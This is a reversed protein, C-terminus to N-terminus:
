PKISDTPNSKSFRFLDSLRKVKKRLSLSLGTKAIEGEFVSEYEKTHFAKLASSGDSELRYELSVDDFLFKNGFVPDKTSYRVGLSTNLRDNFFGKYFRGLYDIRRGMGYTGDYTEVDFSFPVEGMLSGLMNKIERQLLSNLAEGVDMNDSGAGGSALYVGAVLLSIAQKSREEEGMATLQSQVVADSPAELIFQMSMDNLYDKIQIGANFDVKRSQGDFDVSSRVRTSATIDLYPNMADGSWDVYSGNRISFDTLPIVPISYRVTGDSLSYRGNLSLDGQSSYQLTLDGGGKLEVFNSQDENLDVRLKVVPDINITMMVDTGSMAAMDRAGRIIGFSRRNRRPLTDAFYSFTVLDNFSDQVDLPSDTIVYTMNTTGLVRMNGRMVLSQLQGRLTANFNVYLKGYALSEPSKRADILQLNSANMSINALPHNLNTADISGDIVLPNTKLTYINYKDFKIINDTMTVPKDDFHVTTSSAAIFAKGNNIQLSGSVVPNESTGSINFNGQLGGDFRMRQEPIMGNVLNLPANEISLTGAIKNENRGEKYQISLAAIQKMDHFAHFDIQHTGKEFPMYSANLLLEGIYENEYYLNDVNGDAIIMFSSEDPVYRLTANLLGKLVPLYTFESSLKKLDIQNLEIMLEKMTADNETNEESHIWLSSQSSGKLWLNASMDKISAFNVVNDDNVTFPLFALVTKEPYLHFDFGHDAKNVKLGFDLGKLGKSNVYSVYIDGERNRIFGKVEAKYAEQNRFRNKIAEAIYNLGLSDQQIDFRVTDIKLTDKILAILAGKAKLGGTPSITADINFNDFFINNEQLFDYLPNDRKASINLSLHPYYDRLAQFDIISDNKLQKEADSILKTLNNTLTNLDNDATFIASMDGSKFTAMSTDNRSLFTITVNDPQLTQDDFTIVWKDLHFNLSHQKALDSSVESNIRFSTGMPMETLGFGYFDVTDIDVYLTGQLDNKKIEGDFSIEGKALQFSSKLEARLNNNQLKGAIYIDAISNNKYIIRTIGSEIDAFTSPRYLDTNKGKAKLYASLLMISDDPMFHVPELSDAKLYIEYNKNSLNYNASLEVTGASEKLFTELGYESKNITCIGNVSLSDPMRFRQQLDPSLFKEVFRIDHTQLSYKIHGTRLKENQMANIMGNADFRFAGSLEAIFKNIKIDDGTGIAAINLVLVTDPYEAIKKGAAALADKRDVLANINLVFEGKQNEKALASWPVLANILLTSYDTNLQLSDIEIHENDSTFRCTASKIALGSREHATCEKIIANIDRVSGFHVSDLSLNVNSLQLHAVDLGQAPEEFDTRYFIEDAKFTLNNANYMNEGLDAFGNEMLIEGNKLDLFFSDCPMLFVLGVNALEIKKLDIRWNINAQTTDTVATTDCISINLDADNLVLSNLLVEEAKFNVSDAHIFANHIMGSIGFGDFTNGTNMQMERVEFRKISIVGEKLLPKLRVHATLREIHALTDANHTTILAKHLSLRLPFALRVKSVSINMGTVKSAYAAAERSIINQVPPAYLLGVGSLALVILILLTIGIGKLWVKM